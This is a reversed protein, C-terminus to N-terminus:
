ITFGIGCPQICAMKTRCISATEVLAVFRKRRERHTEYHKRRSLKRNRKRRTDWKGRGVQLPVLPADTQTHMNARLYIVRAISWTVFPGAVHVGKHRCTAKTSDHANNRGISSDLVCLAIKKAGTREHSQFRLNCETIRSLARLQRHQPFNHHEDENWPKANLWLKVSCRKKWRM